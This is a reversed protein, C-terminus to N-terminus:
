PSTLETAAQKVIEQLETDNTEALLEKSFLKLREGKDGLVDIRDM